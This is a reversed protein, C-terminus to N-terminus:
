RVGPPTVSGPNNLVTDVATQARAMNKQYSGSKYVSWPAWSAGGRSITYAFRANVYADYWRSADPNSPNIMKPHASALIQWLGYTNLRGVANANCRSESMAVAVAIVLGDGSFGAKKAALAVQEPKLVNSTGPTHDGNGVAQTTTTTSGQPKTTTTSGKPKTTTTTSKHQTTTTTSQAGGGNGGNDGDTQGAEQAAAQAAALAAELADQRQQEQRALEVQQANWDAELQAVEAEKGKLTQKAAALKQDLAQKAAAAEDSATQQAELQATLKQSQDEVEARYTTVQQLLDADQKSIREFLAVRDLLTALSASSLIAALTSGRGQKYIEALRDSLASEAALQDQQVQALLDANQAADSETQAVRAQASGYQKKLQAAQDKLEKFQAELTAAQNKAQSLDGQTDARAVSGGTLALVLMIFLACLIRPGVSQATGSSIV